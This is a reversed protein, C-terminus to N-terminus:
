SKIAEIYMSLIERDPHTEDLVLEPVDSRLYSSRIVQEFGAKRLLEAFFEFDYLFQHFDNFRFLLNVAVIPPHGGQGSEEFYRTDNELYARALDRADHLVLRARGGVALVRHCERLFADSAHPFNLQDCFHECSILAVSGDTLPLPRRLDMSIEARPSVDLGIWGPRRAGGSAINLKIDRQKRLSAILRRQAPSFLGALQAYAGLWEYRILQFVRVLDPHREYAWKKINRMM